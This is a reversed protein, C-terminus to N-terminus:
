KTNGKQPKAVSIKELKFTDVVTKTELKLQEFEEKPYIFEFSFAGSIARIAKEAEDTPARDDERLHVFREVVYEKDEQKIETKLHHFKYKAPNEYVDYAVSVAGWKEKYFDKGAEIFKKVSQAPPAPRVMLGGIGKGQYSLLM